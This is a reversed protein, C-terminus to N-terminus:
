FKGAPTNVVPALGNEASAPFLMFDDYDAGAQTETNDSDTLIGIGEVKGPERGFLRKYDEYINVREWYWKGDEPAGSRLVIFKGWWYHPSKDNTGVPLSNSWVYKIVRPLMRSDFVVYVGAASDNRSKIRENSGDPFATVRWRWSLYPYQTPKFAHPLGVQVGQRMSYARLFHNGDEERVVQYIRAAEAMDARTRWRSPFVFPEDQEFSDLTVAKSAM